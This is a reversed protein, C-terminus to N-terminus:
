DLLIRANDLKRTFPCCVVLWAGIFTNRSDRTLFSNLVERADDAEQRQQQKRREDELTRAEADTTTTSSSSGYQAPSPIARPASRTGGGGGVTGFNSEGGGRLTFIGQGHRLTSTADHYCHHCQQLSTGAVVIARKTDGASVSVVALVLTFGCFIFTKM